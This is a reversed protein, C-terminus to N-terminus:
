ETVKTLYNSIFYKKNNPKIKEKFIKGSGSFSKKACHLLVLRLFENLGLPQAARKFYSRVVPKNFKILYLLEM